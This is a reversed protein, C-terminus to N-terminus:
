NIRNVNEIMSYQNTIQEVKISVCVNTGSVVGRPKKWFQLM